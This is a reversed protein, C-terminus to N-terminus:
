VAFVSAVGEVRTQVDHWSLGAASAWACSLVVAIPTSLQRV